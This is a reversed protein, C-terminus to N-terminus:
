SGFMEKSVRLLQLSFSYIKKKQLVIFKWKICMCLFHSNPCAPSWWLGRRWTKREGDRIMILAPPLFRFLEGIKRTHSHLRIHPSLDEMSFGIIYIDSNRNRFAQLIRQRYNLSLCASYENVNSADCDYSFSSCDYDCLLCGSLVWNCWDCSISMWMWDCSLCGANMRLQHM